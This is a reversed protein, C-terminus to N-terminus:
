RKPAKEGRRARDEQRHRGRDIQEGDGTSRGSGPRRRGRRLRGLKFLLDGFHDQVASDRVRQTPPGGCTDSPWTSSTRGSTRGASATSTPATTRTSRRAGAQHLRRGRRAARRPGGAHLRPLQAGARAAPGERLVERFKREADAFRKQRELVAGAEFTVSLDSPFKEGRRTSCAAAGRRVPRRRATSPLALYAPSTTPIRQRARRALLAAGEDVQGAAAAGRGRTPRLAPRRPAGRLSARWSSRGRRVPPRGGAGAPHVLDVVPDGPSLRGRASSPPSRRTPM